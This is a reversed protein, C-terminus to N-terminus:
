KRNKSIVLYLKHVVEKMIAGRSYMRDFASHFHETGIYELNGEKIMKKFDEIPVENRIDYPIIDSASNYVIKKLPEVEEVLLYAEQNLFSGIEKYFEKHLKWGPDNPRLDGILNKGAQNDPNLAYYNPPNAVVLDFKESKPIGKLNDSIYYTVCESLGNESVTKKICEIALPNVDALCLKEAIGEKLLAFGIFGPGSCWEFVRHFKKGPFREKIFKVFSAAQNTGDGDLEPYYAVKLSKYTWISHKMNEM